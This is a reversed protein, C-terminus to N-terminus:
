SESEVEDRTEDGIPVFSPREDTGAGVARLRDRYEEAHFRDSLRANAVLVLLVVGITLFILGLVTTMLGSGWGGLDVVLPSVLLALGAVIQVVAIIQILLNGLEGTGERVDTPAPLLDGEPMAPVDYEDMSCLAVSSKTQRLITGEGEVSGDPYVIVYGEDSYALVRDEPDPIREVVGFVERDRVKAKLDAEVRDLLRTGTIWTEPDFVVEWEEVTMEEMDAPGFDDFDYKEEVDSRSPTVPEEEAAPPDAHDNEHSDESRTM